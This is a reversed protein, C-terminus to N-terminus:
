ENEGVKQEWPMCIKALKSLGFDMFAGLIAISFMGCFVIPYQMLSRADNMRFGIGSRAAIMEAGVVAMWSIGLGLKLGVFISPIASPFYIKMFMQWRSLHYMKGVEILKQDTRSIGSMTNVLIPFYAGLFIVAVKSGEGIGFWIVLLPVWAMIPVQRIATLTGLFLNHVRSDIGMVVGLAGGCLVALGYGKVVRLLSIGLDELLTGDRMQEVFAKLVSPITPLVLTSVMQNETVVYWLILILIPVIIKLKINRKM